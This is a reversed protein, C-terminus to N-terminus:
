EDFSSASVLSKEKYDAEGLKNDWVSPLEDGSDKGHM